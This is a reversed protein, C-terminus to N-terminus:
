APTTPSSGGGLGSYTSQWRQVVAWATFAAKAAWGKGQFKAAKQEPAHLWGGVVKEYSMPDHEGKGNAKRWEREIQKPDFTALSGDERLYRMTYNRGRWRTSLNLPDQEYCFLMVVRGPGIFRIVRCQTSTGEPSYNVFDDHEETTFRPTLYPKLATNLATRSATDM